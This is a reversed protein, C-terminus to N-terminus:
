KLGLPKGNAIRSIADTIYETRKKILPALEQATPKSYFPRAANLAGAYDSLRAATVRAGAIPIKARGAGFRKSAKPKSAKKAKGGGIYRPASGDKFTLTITEPTVAVKGETAGTALLGSRFLIPSSGSFGKRARQKATSEALPKWPEGASQGESKFRNRVIEQVLGDAALTANIKQALKEPSKLYIIAQNLRRMQRLYFDKRPNNSESWEYNRPASM